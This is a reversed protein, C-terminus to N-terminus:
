LNHWAKEFEDKNIEKAVFEAEENIEDIGPLPEPSLYTTDSFVQESAKELSGDRYIIIKRTEFNDDDLEHYFLVPEDEFDHIWTAKM